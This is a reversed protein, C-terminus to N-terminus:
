DWDVHQGAQSNEFDTNGFEHYLYIGLLTNVTRRYQEALKEDLEDIIRYISNLSLGPRSSNGNRIDVHIKGGQGYCGYKNPKLGYELLTRLIVGQSFHIEEPSDHYDGSKEYAILSEHHYKILATYLADVFMKMSLPVPGTPINNQTLDFMLQDFIYEMDFFAVEFDKSVSRWDDEDALAERAARYGSNTASDRTFLATIKKGDLTATLQHRIKETEGDKLKQSKRPTLMKFDFPKDFRITVQPFIVFFIVPTQIVLCDYWDAKNGPMQAMFRGLKWGHEFAAIESQVHTLGKFFTVFESSPEGSLESKNSM